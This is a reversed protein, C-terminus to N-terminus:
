GRRLVVALSPITGTEGPMSVYPATAEVVAVGAMTTLITSFGADWLSTKVTLVMPGGARTIRILEPLAEAGVHGTTFVGTSIVAAFAGDAFPLPQGLALQHLRAYSGKSRAVALMGASLDLGEVPAFGLIGLWDGLLGTGCGADLVPGTGRPAHRALLACGISPHRYGAAAMEADYSAAWADYAAAVQEPAQADYVKGLHGDHHGISM